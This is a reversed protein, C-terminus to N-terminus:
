AGRVRCGQRALKGDPCAGRRRAKGLWICHMMTISRTHFFLHHWLSSHHALSAAGHTTAMSPLGPLLIVSCTSSPPLHHLVLEKGSGCPRRLGRGALAYDDSDRPPRLGRQHELNAAHGQRNPRWTEDIFMHDDM